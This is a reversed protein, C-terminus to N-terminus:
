LNSFELDEVLQRYSLICNSFVEINLEVSSFKEIIAREIEDKPTFESYKHIIKYNQYPEKNKYFGRITDHHQYLVLATKTDFCSIILRFSADCMLSNTVQHNMDTLICTPYINEDSIQEIKTLKLEKGLIEFIALSYYDVFPFIFPVSLQNKYYYTTKRNEDVRVELDKFYIM